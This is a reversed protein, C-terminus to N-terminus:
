PYALSCAMRCCTYAYRVGGGGCGSRTLHFSQLTEGHHCAVNHRDLYAVVNHAGEACSTSRGECTSQCNVATPMVLLRQFQLQQAYLSALALVVFVAGVRRWMVWDNVAELKAAVWTRAADREAAAAVLWYWPPAAAAFAAPVLLFDLDGGGPAFAHRAKLLVGLIVTFVGVFAGASQLPMRAVAITLRVAVALFLLGLVLHLVLHAPEHASSVWERLLVVAGTGVDRAAKHLGGALHEGMGQMGVALREGMGRVDINVDPAAHSGLTLAALAIVRAQLSFSANGM